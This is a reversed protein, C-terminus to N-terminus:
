FNYNKLNQDINEIIGQVGKRSQHLRIYRVLSYKKLQDYLKVGKKALRQTKDIGVGDVNVGFDDVMITGGVKILKLALKFEEFIHDPDNVSDLLILDFRDKGLMKMLKVSDGLLWDINDLHKCIDKAVKISEEANDISVVNGKTTEAIIRTSEHKEHYSRITGTELINLPEQSNLKTVLTKLIDMKTQPSQCIKKMEKKKNSACLSARAVRYKKSYFVKSIKM